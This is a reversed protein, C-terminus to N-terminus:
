QVIELNKTGVYAYCIMETEQKAGCTHNGAAGCGGSGCGGGRNCLAKRGCRGCGCCLRRRVRSPGNKHDGDHGDKYTPSVTNM